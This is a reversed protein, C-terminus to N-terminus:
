VPEEALWSVLKLMTKVETNKGQTIRCATAVTIGTERSLQRTSIENVRMYLLLMESFRTM